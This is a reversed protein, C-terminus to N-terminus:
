DPRVAFLPQGFEIAQGNKVLVKEITGSMEARIDNFVKMAEIVCVVTDETVHDGVKVFPEAGPESAVYFTGVMPAKIAAEEEPEKAPAPAQPAPSAPAPPAVAPAPVMQVESGAKRLRVALGEQEVELEVLDHEKMLELLRRIPEVDLREAKKEEAM